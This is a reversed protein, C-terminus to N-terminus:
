HAFNQIQPNKGMTKKQPSSGLVLSLIKSLTPHRACWGWSLPAVYLLCLIVLSLSILWFGVNSYWVLDSAGIFEPQVLNSGDLRELLFVIDM